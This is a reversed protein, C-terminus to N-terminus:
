FTRTPIIHKINEIMYPYKFFHQLHKKAHRRYLCLIYKLMKAVRSIEFHIYIYWGDYM